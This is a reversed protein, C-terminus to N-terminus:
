RYSDYKNKLEDEIMIKEVNKFGDIYNNLTLNDIFIGLKDGLTRYLIDGINEVFERLLVHKYDTGHKDYLKLVEDAFGNKQYSKAVQRLYANSITEKFTDRDELAKDITNFDEKVDPIMEGVM